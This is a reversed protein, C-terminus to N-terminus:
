HGDRELTARTLNHMQAACLLLQNEAEGKEAVLHTVGFVVGDVCTRACQRVVASATETEERGGGVGKVGGGRQQRGGVKEV